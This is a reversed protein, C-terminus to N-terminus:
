TWLLKISAFLLVGGLVQRLRVDSLRKAGITSGILGGTFAAIIWGTIDPTLWTGDGGVRTMGSASNVFIFLASVAASEKADCWRLLLLIPSLLIGGGIGIIGSVFGIGTGILLALAINLERTESRWTGFLRLLRAVAVLLCLALIRTYIEADVHIGAGLYSMPISALAFPWFLHFRFYGARAFQAFAIVSVLLNLLLASPRTVDQTFGLMVLLALYGSAGGHGVSAYLFAILLIAAPILLESM